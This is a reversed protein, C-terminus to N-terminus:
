GASAAARLERSRLRTFTVAGAFLLTSAAVTGWGLWAPRVGAAVADVGIAFYPLALMSTWAHTYPRAHLLGRLPALLPVAVVFLVLAIPVHTPPAIWTHWNLLLLLLAFHAGLTLLRCARTLPQM